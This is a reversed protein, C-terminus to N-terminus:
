NWMKMANQLHNMIKPKKSRLLLQITILKQNGGELAKRIISDPKRKLSIDKSVVYPLLYDVDWLRQCDPEQNYQLVLPALRKQLAYEL